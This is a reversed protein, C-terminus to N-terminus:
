LIFNQDKSSGVSFLKTPYDSCQRNSGLLPHFHGAGRIDTNPLLLTEVSVPQILTDFLKSSYLPVMKRTKTQLCCTKRTDKKDTEKPLELNCDEGM